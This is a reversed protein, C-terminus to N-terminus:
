AIESLLYECEMCTLSMAYVFHQSSSLVNKAAPSYTWIYGSSECVVVISFIAVITKSKTTIITESSEMTSVQPTGDIGRFNAYPLDGRVPLLM